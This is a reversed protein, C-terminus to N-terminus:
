LPLLLVGAEAGGKQHVGFSHPKQFCRPQFPTRAPFCSPLFPSSAPILESMEMSAQSPLLLAATLSRASKRDWLLANQSHVLLSGEEPCSIQPNCVHPWMSVSVVWPPCLGFLSTPFFNATQAPTPSPLTHEPLDCRCPSEYLCAFMCVQCSTTVQLRCM